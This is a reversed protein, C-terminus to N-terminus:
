DKKPAQFGPITDVLGYTAPDMFPNVPDTSPDPAADRGPHKGTTIAPAAPALEAKLGDIEVRLVGAGRLKEASAILLELLEAPPVSM